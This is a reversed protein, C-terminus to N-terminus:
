PDQPAKWRLAGVPPKAYPVGAWVWCDNGADAGAVEGYLTQVTTQNADFIANIAVQVDEIITSQNAEKIWTDMNDWLNYLIVGAKYYAGSQTDKIASNIMNLVTKQSNTKVFATGPLAAVDNHLTTLADIPSIISVTPLVQANVSLSTFVLGLFVLFVIGLSIKWNTKKM